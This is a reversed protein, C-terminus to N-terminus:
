LLNQMFYVWKFYDFAFGFFHAETEFSNAKNTQLEFAWEILDYFAGYEEFTSM